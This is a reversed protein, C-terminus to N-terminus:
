CIVELARPFMMIMLEKGDLCLTEGDAHAPLTGEIATVKVHDTTITIIEEHKDQTGKMFYPMLYFVRAKSVDGAICLNFIEDDIIANPAMMFGGGMRRGNMVSILLSSIILTESNYEIRVKPAKYYLFITKIAAIIYSLFGHLRVMKQAEFGVVADFGIGVGNGFYLGQPYVGGSVQGIDIAKSRYRVLNDFGDKIGPRIGAGFAFDNGRGVGLVGLKAQGLGHTKATMLGNIVENSTGDGGVAVVTESGSKVAEQTLLIAPQPKETRVIRYDDFDFRHCMDEIAPIAQEGAGHGAVPNVIFTFKM